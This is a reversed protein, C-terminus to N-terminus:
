RMTAQKPPHLDQTQSISSLLAPDIFEYTLQILETAAPFDAHQDLIVADQPSIADEQLKKERLDLCVESFDPIIERARFGSAASTKNRTHQTSDADHVDKTQSLFIDLRDKERQIQLHRNMERLSELVEHVTVRSM